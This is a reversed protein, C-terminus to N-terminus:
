LSKMVYEMYSSMSLARSISMAAINAFSDLYSSEEKSFSASDETKLLALVGIVTNNATLPLYYWKSSALTESGRGAPKGNKYVWHSIGIENDGFPISNETNAMVKINDEKGPLLIVVDSKFFDGFNKIISGLIENLFNHTLLEKSFNYITNLFKEQKRFRDIRWRVLDSLISTTAGVIFFVIFIPLYIIDSIAFSFVPKVFFFDLVVVSLLSSWIGQKLGGYYSILLVPILMLMIINTFGLIKILLFSLFSVALIVSSSLLYATIGASKGGEMERGKPLPGPATDVLMVQIPKALRILEDVVSGRILNDLRSRSSFGILILTIHNEKAFIAIEDAVKNAVLTVTKAGLDEALKLNKSVQARLEESQNGFQSSEVHVTFWEADLDEAMRHGIRILKQSSSAASIAVLIRSGVPIPSKIANQRMYDLLEDSVQRATYRLSLERLGMLNSRKFFELMAIRAKEPIYVKGERLRTELEEIPVDVLEIEDAKDFFSDPVIERVKIGTMQEVIDNISELHQVNLTTVVNIGSNLLEEIDEFRKNHRSGPVNTHALEDVLVLAPKRKLVADLDFEEFVIGQYEIKLRPIVELGALMENTEARGHTEALGVIVDVGKKKLIGASQLMRYTKGVGASYGLYIKLLGSLDNKGSEEMQMRKLITEPDLRRIEPMSM